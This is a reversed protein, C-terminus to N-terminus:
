VVSKRDKGDPVPRTVAGSHEREGGAAGEIRHVQQRELRLLLRGNQSMRCATEISRAERGVAEPSSKRRPQRACLRTQVDSRQAGGRHALRLPNGEALFIGSLGGPRGIAGHEVEARLAVPIVTNPRATQISLFM